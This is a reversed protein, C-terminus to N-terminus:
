GRPFTAVLRKKLLITIIFNGFQLFETPCLFFYLFFILTYSLFLVSSDTSEAHMGLNITVTSVGASGGCVHQQQQHHHQRREPRTAVAAAAAPHAPAPLSTHILHYSSSSSSSGNLSRTARLCAPLLCALM